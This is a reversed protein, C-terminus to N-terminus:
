NGPKKEIMCNTGQQWCQPSYGMAYPINTLTAEVDDLFQNTASAKVHGFHYGSPGASTHERAKRWGMQYEETTVVMSVPPAQHISAPMSLVSLLKKAYEDMGPPPNM